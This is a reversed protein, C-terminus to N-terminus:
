PPLPGKYTICPIDSRVFCRHHFVFNLDIINKNKIVLLYYSKAWWEDLCKRDVQQNENEYKNPDVSYLQEEVIISYTGPKLQITFKGTSDTTFRTVIKAETRNIKGQRIYFKKNPYVKPRALKDLMEQSPRAGGCYSSTQEVLGSILYAKSKKARHCHVFTKSKETMSNKSVIAQCYISTVSLYFILMAILKSRKM